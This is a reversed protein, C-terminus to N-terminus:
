ESVLMVVVVCLSVYLLTGLRRPHSDHAAVRDLEANTEVM